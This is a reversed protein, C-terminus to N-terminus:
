KKFFEQAFYSGYGGLKENYLGGVGLHTYDGLMNARHRSSSVWSTYVYFGNSQGAAINEGCRTWHIGQATFRESFKRGDISDHSFYNNKAMDECHLCAAKAAPASWQLVREGHLVRFANTLHFNLKCEQAMMEATHSYSVTKYYEKDKIFVAHMREEDNEDTFITDLRKEAPVVAGGSYGLYSFGKGAAILAVVKGDDVGAAFFRKYTDTGYVYWTYGDVSKLTEEPTDLASAPMGIRYESAGVTLKSGEGAYLANEQAVEMAKNVFRAVDGRKAAVRARVPISYDWSENYNIIDYDEAVRVYGLPWGDQQIAEAELGAMCVVMKLIEWYNVRSEPAFSGDGMGSLIGAETATMISERAWHDNDVDTYSSALQSPALGAARVIVAAAEARTIEGLPRFTGDEYGNLIGKESLATVAGYYASERSVDSFASVTKPFLVIQLLMCAALLLYIHKKM